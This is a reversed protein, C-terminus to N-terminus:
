MKNKVNKAKQDPGYLFFGGSMREAGFGFHTILKHILYFLCCCFFLLLVFIPTHVARKDGGSKERSMDPYITKLLSCRPNGSNLRFCDSSANSGSQSSQRSQLLSCCGWSWHLSQPSNQMGCAESKTRTDDRQVGGDGDGFSHQCCQEM